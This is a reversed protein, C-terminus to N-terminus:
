EMGLGGQAGGGLSLGGLSGMHMSFGKLQREARYGPRVMPGGRLRVPAEMEPDQVAGFSKPLSSSRVPFGVERKEQASMARREHPLKYRDQDGAFRERIWSETGVNASRREDLRENMWTKLKGSIEKGEEEGIEWGGKKVMLDGHGHGNGKEDERSRRSVVSKQSGRGSFTPRFRALASLSRFVGGRMKALPLLPPPAPLAGAMSESFELFHHNYLIQHLRSELKNDRMRKARGMDRSVLFGVSLNVAEVDSVDQGDNEEKIMAQQGALSFKSDAQALLLCKLDNPLEIGCGEADDLACLLQMAQALYDLIVKDGSSEGEEGERFITDWKPEGADYNAGVAFHPDRTDDINNTGVAVEECKSLLVKLLPAMVFVDETVVSLDLLHPSSSSPPQVSQIYVVGDEYRVPAVSQVDLEGVKRSLTMSAELSAFFIDLIHEPLSDYLPPNVQWKM